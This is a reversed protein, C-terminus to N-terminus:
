AHNRALPPFRWALLTKGDHVPNAGHLLPGSLRFFGPKQNGIYHLTCPQLSKYEGQIADAPSAKKNNFGRASAGAERGPPGSIVAKFRKKREKNREKKREM